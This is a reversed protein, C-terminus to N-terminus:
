RKRARSRILRELADYIRPVYQHKYPYREVPDGLHVIMAVDIEFLVVRGDPLIGCDIGFYDLGVRAALEALVEKRPGDFVSEVDALFRAEEDLTWDWEGNRANYYHVMWKDSIALHHAYPKGDVFIIRYKRYYGDSSHYDVFPIIFFEEDPTEALYAALASAGELRILGGGAQSDVPRVIVPSQVTAGTVAPDLALATRDVRRVAPVLAGELNAYDRAVRDRSLLRVRAPDNLMPLDVTPLWKELTALTADAADSQAVANFVLDARPVAAPNPVGAEVYLKHVGIPMLTYLYELPVNAQWDGATAVMLITPAGAQPRKEFFLRQEALAARQHALARLRDGRVQFAEYLGFHAAVSRPDAAVAAEFAAIASDLRMSVLSLNGLGVHAPAMGPDLSAALRFATEAERARGLESLCMARNLHLEARAPATALAAEFAALAGALDGQGRKSLGIQNWKIAGGGLAPTGPIVEQLADTM